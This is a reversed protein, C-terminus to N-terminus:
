AQDGVYGDDSGEHSARQLNPIRIIVQLHHLGVLLTRPRQRGQAHLLNHFPHQRSHSDCRRRSRRRPLLPYRHLRHQLNLRQRSRLHLPLICQHRPTFTHSRVYQQQHQCSISTQSNPFSLDEFYNNTCNIRQKPVPAIFLRPTSNIDERCSLGGGEECSNPDVLELRWPIDRHSSEM